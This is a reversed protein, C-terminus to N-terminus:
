IGDMAVLNPSITVASKLKRLFWEVSSENEGQLFTMAFLRTRGFNTRGSLTFLPLHFRNALGKGDIALCPVIPCSIKM